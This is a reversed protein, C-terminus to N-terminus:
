EKIAAVFNKRAEKDEKAENILIRDREAASLSKLFNKRKNDM